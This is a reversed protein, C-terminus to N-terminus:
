KLIGAEGLHGAYRMVLLDIGLSLVLGFTAVVVVVSPHPAKALAGDFTRLGELLHTAHAFLDLGLVLEWARVALRWLGLLLCAAIITAGEVMVLTGMTLPMQRWAQAGTSTAFADVLEFGRVGIAVFFIVWVAVPMRPRAHSIPEVTM